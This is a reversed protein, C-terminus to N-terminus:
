RRGCHRPEAGNSATEGEVHRVQMHLTQLSASAFAADLLDKRPALSAHNTLTLLAFGRQQLDDAAQCLMVGPHHADAGAGQIHGGCGEAAVAATAVAAARGRSAAAAVAAAIAAPAAARSRRCRPCHLRSQHKLERLAVEQYQRSGCRASSASYHLTM